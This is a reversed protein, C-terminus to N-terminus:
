RRRRQDQPQGERRHLLVPALRANEDQHLGDPRHGAPRCFHGRPSEATAFTAGTAKSYGIVTHENVDTWYLKSSYSADLTWGNNSNRNYPVDTYTFSALPHATRQIKTLVIQDGEVFARRGDAAYITAADLRTEAGSGAITPNISFEATGTTEGATTDDDTCATSVLGMALTLTM